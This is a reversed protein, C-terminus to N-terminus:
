LMESEIEVLRKYKAVREPPNPSGAKMGFAGIGVSLDAIFDDTTDGSRHSVILKWGAGRAIKVADFTETLTGVQNPKVIMANVLNNEAAWAAREPNTVTLDDGVILVDEKLNKRFNAFGESDDEAFPDEISLLKYSGLLSNYVGALDASSYKRGLLEYAGDKYFESAAADIALSVNEKGATLSSLIDFPEELSDIKPSYGGEDGMPVEGFRSSMIEGLRGFLEQGKEFSSRPSDASLVIMYEQFPLRFNAHVGGNIINMFLSPFSPTSGTIESIHKWLPIQKQKAALRATAISIGILTNGGLKSKDRTGDLEILMRDINEQEPEKGLIAPKIEKEIKEIGIGIGGDESRLEVAEHIGASKGSPVKASVTDTGDSVFIELTLVGRSDPIEKAYIDSIAKAM